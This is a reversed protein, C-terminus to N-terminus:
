AGSILGMSTGVYTGPGETSAEPGLGAHAGYCLKSLNRVIHIRYQLPLGEDEYASAVWQSIESCDTVFLYYILALMQVIM